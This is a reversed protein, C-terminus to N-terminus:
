GKRGKLFFEEFRRDDEDGHHGERAPELFEVGRQKEVRYVALPKIEINYSDADAILPVCYAGAQNERQRWYLFEEGVACGFRERAERLLQAIREAREGKQLSKEDAETRLAKSRAKREEAEKFLREARHRIKRGEARKESVLLNMESSTAWMREVEDWLRLKRETEREYDDHIQRHEREAKRLEAEVSALSGELDRLRARDDGAAGIEAKIATVRERCEDMAKEAAGLRYWIESVKFRHEEYSAVVEFSRNEVDTAESVLKAATDECSGARYLTDIANKQALESRFDMLTSQTLFEDFHEAAEGETARAQALTEWWGTFDVSAVIERVESLSKAKM